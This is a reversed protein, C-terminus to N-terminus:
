NRFGLQPIRGFVAVRTASDQATASSSKIGGTQSKLWSNQNPRYPIGKTIILYSIHTIILMLYLVRLEKSATSFSWGRPLGVRHKPIMTLCKTAGAWLHRFDRTPTCCGGSSTVPPGAGSWRGGPRPVVATAEDADLFAWIM